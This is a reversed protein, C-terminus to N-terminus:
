RNYRGMTYSKYFTSRASEATEIIRDLEALTILYSNGGIEFNGIITDAKRNRIKDSSLNENLNFDITGFLSGYRKAKTQDMAHTMNLSM